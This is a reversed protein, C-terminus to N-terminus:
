DVFIFENSLLLAHVYEQWCNLYPSSEGDPRVVAETAAARRSCAGSALYETGVEIEDATAPRGLLLRYLADIATCVSRYAAPNHPDVRSAVHVACERLFPSNMLFLAQQPVTTPFRQPSTSDPSPFDFTRFLAPLQHRDIFGYVTRRQSLPEAFLEVSPGEMALDLQGAVFLLSDRFAEWDLRRRNMKWLLRNEADTAAALPNDVSQQQYVASTMLRRHLSKISWGDAVFCTALYDLLDAHTPPDGRLGFDSPTRVLGFGFHHAWVRNVLVRATLPNTPAIICHALELRGSGRQFARQPGDTLLALFQRPVIKGPNSANGRLFVPSDSPVAADFLAHAHPAAGRSAIWDEVVRQREHYENQTTADVFLFDQVEHREVTCPGDRGYLLQRVAEGDHDLLAAAQPDAALTSQWRHDVARFVAAYCAAVEALNAPRRAMLESRVLANIPADDAGADHWCAIQQAARAQFDNDPVSAALRALEHWPALIPHQEHRSRELLRSWRQVVAPNLEKRADILFMVPLYNAQVQEGQAALLYDGARQRFSAALSRQQASLYSEFQETRRALEELYTAYKARQAPHVITPPVEPERSSAFVGHLGYYDRVSIPDFKHDHCRACTVTLALLGRTVVDIRDDIIDHQSNIFRQGLTLFGLAALPRPDAHLDIQDAAIQEVIFQDYPLDENFARVVYDRYTWASPYRPNDKLRVYGKTDAYRAVDLGYRGWREGYRPSNLLRDVLRPLADPARDALFAEVEEPTPPLGHLDFTARRILTRRDALPAPRLRAEELRALIFADVPTQVWWRDATRPVLPARVPQFAWHRAAQTALSPSPSPFVDSAQGDPPWVGGSRVWTALREIDADSLKNDPPMRVDGAYGVVELLRSEEPRDAVVLPGSDSGRQFAAASDLRLGAEQKTAGHCGHCHETFIPRVHREFYDSSQATASAQAAFASPPDLAAAPPQAAARAATLGLFLLGCVRLM